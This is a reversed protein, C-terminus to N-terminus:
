YSFNKRRLRILKIEHHLCTVNLPCRINSVNQHVHRHHVHVVVLWHEEVLGVMGKDGSDGLAAVHDGLYAPSLVYNPFLDCSRRVAM